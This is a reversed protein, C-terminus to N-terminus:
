TSSDRRHLEGCAPEQTPSFRHRGGEDVQVQVGLEGHEVARGPDGVDDGRGGGVPLRRDADGIVAVHVANEVEVLLAPGPPDLRDDAGLGVHGGLGPVLPRHPPTADVVPSAVAIVPLLEVVVQGQQGLSSRAVAVEHLQRAGGVELPVVVLGADVPLQELPEARADDGGGAAESAHHQLGQELAVHLQGRLPGGTELVDEPPIREEDLELVVSQVSLSLVLGWSM